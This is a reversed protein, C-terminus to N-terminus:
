AEGPDDSWDGVEARDLDALDAPAVELLARPSGSPLLITEHELLHEDVLLDLDDDLAFPPIMGSPYGTRELSEENSVLSLDLAEAGFHRAVRGGHVRRDGPVVVLVAAEDVTVLVTNGVEALTRDTANSAEVVTRVPDLGDFLDARVGRSRATQLVEEPSAVVVGGEPTAM